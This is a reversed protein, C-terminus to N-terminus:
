EYKLSEVPNALAAKISQYGVTFLAILAVVFIPLIFFWWGLNINYAYNQLWSETFYYAAPLAVVSALLILWLYDKSLLILIQNLSAGLVKRIGIEKTRKAVTFYSLGFLGLCAVLIALFSFLGVVWGFKVDAAYQQNFYDDLFFHRLPAGPFHTKWQKEVFSVTASIDDTKVKMSYYDWGYQQTFFVIPKFNLKLSEQHYDELVGIIRFRQSGSANSIEKGIANDPSNFGFVRVATENVLVSQEDTGFDRSFNRGSLVELEYNTVFDPDIEFVRARKLNEEQDDARKMNWSGGVERGPVDGSATFSLINTNALLSEKFTNVKEIFTSDHGTNDVLVLTQEIDVGLDQQRMFQIQHYLAITGAILGISAIFQVVVLVKRLGGGRSFVGRASLNNRLAAIPRFSSLVFAPYLGALIAGIGFVTVLTLWFQWSNLLTGEMAKGALEEFYPMSLEFLFIAIILAILNVLLTEFLFQRVLQFKTAGTVKRVGVEKSRDLSRATSLNIYNIWAILLILLGIIGLFAVYRANGNVRMEYSLDSHLHIYTLPQLGLAITFGFRKFDEGKYKEMFAPFKAELADPDANPKLLIYTYFDSWGWSNEADGGSQRVLDVYTQYPMLFNFQMHSNEPVDEFVGKVAFSLESSGRGMRLSKGIPNEDGFYKKATSESIAMDYAGDLVTAPDGNKFPFSFMTPFAEDVFYVRESYVKDEYKVVFGTRRMRIAEEIEPFERKLHPAVAPFTFAFTQEAEGKEYKFMPVRYIRDKNAHFDDYSQEFSVYQILLLCATMGVALGLINVISFVKNKFLNRLAIKLYNRLM